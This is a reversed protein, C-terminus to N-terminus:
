FNKWSRNCGVGAAAPVMSCNIGFQDPKKSFSRM